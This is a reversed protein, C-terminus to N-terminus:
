DALKFALDTDWENMDPVDGPDSLYEELRATWREAGDVLQIDWQLGRGSAWALLDGTARELGDPHGHYRVVAYTGAPLVGASVRGDGEVPEAVAVGTELEIEGAMDIVNYKWLAPGAPEIGRQALWGFVEGTLAPVEEGLRDMRVRAAIAVYPRAPREVISPEM